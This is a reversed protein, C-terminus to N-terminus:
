RHGVVSGVQKIVPMALTLDGLRDAEFLAAIMFGIAQTNAEFTELKRRSESVRRLAQSCAKRDLAAELREVTEKVRAAKVAGRRKMERGVTQPSVGLDCAIQNAHKCGLEFLDAERRWAEESVANREAMDVEMGDTAQLGHPNLRCTATAIWTLPFAHNRESRPGKPGHSEMVMSEMPEPIGGLIDAAVM